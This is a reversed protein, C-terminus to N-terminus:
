KLQALRAFDQVFMKNLDQWRDVIGGSSRERKRVSNPTVTVVLNEKSYSAFAIEDVDLWPLRGYKNLLLIDFPQRSEDGERSLSSKLGHISFRNFFLHAGNMHLYIRRLEFPMSIGLEREINNIVMGSLPQFVEFQWRDCNSEGFLTVHSLNRYGKTKAIEWYPVLESIIEASM